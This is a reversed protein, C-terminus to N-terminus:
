FEVEYFAALPGMKQQALPHGSEVREIAHPENLDTKKIALADLPGREPHKQPRKGETSATV